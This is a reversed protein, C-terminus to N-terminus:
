KSLTRENKIEELDERTAFSVHEKCDCCWQVEPLNEDHSSCFEGSNVKRWELQEVDESGCSDCITTRVLEKTM